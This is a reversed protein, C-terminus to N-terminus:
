EKNMFEHIEEPTYADMVLYYLRGFSSYHLKLWWGNGACLPGSRAAYYGMQTVTTAAVENSIGEPFVWDVGQYWFPMYGSRVRAANIGAIKSERDIALGNVQLSPITTATFVYRKPDNDTLLQAYGEKGYIKRLKRLEAKMYHGQYGISFYDGIANARGETDDLNRFFLFVRAVKSLGDDDDEMMITLGLQDWSYFWVANLEENSRRTPAGLASIWASTDQGPQLVRGSVHLGCSDLAIADGAQANSPCPLIVMALVAIALRLILKQM